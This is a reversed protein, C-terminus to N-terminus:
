PLEFSAAADHVVTQFVVNLLILSLESHQVTYCVANSGSSLMRKVFRVLAIHWTQIFHKHSLEHM